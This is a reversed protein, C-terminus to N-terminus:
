NFTRWFSIKPPGVFYEPAREIFARIYPTQMHDGLYAERSTWTEYLLINARDDEDRLIDIGLCDQEHAVVMAILEKLQELAADATEARASYQILVTVPEM